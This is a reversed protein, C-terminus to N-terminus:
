DESFPSHKGNISEFDDIYDSDNKLQEREEGNTTDNQGDINNILEVSSLEFQSVDFPTGDEVTQIDMQEGSYTFKQAVVSRMPNKGLPFFPTDPEVWNIEFLDKGLKFFILDGERPEDMGTQIAFTKPNITFTLEDNVQYGFKDFFDQQGQYGEFNEVYMSIKKAEKFSSNPAEGFFNDFDVIERKLYFCEVGCWNISQAVLTDHLQQQNVHDFNSAYPNTVSSERTKNFGLGSELQAFLNNDM